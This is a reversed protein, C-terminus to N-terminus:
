SPLPDVSTAWLAFCRRTCCLKCFSAEILQLMADASHPWGAKWSLDPPDNGPYEKVAARYTAHGALNERLATKVSPPLDMKDSMELLFDKMTSKFLLLDVLGKATASGQLSRVSVDQPGLLKSKVLDTLALFCWTIKSADGARKIIAYMKYVSNFPSMHGHESDMLVVADKVVPLNLARNYVTLANDIFADSLSETGPTHQVNAAYMAALNAASQKGMSTEKWQRFMEVEYVRQFATRGLVRFDASVAQWWLV